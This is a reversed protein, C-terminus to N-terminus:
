VHQNQRYLVMDRRSTVTKPYLANYM